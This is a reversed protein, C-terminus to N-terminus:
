FFTSFVMDYTKQFETLKEPDQPSNWNWFFFVTNSIRLLGDGGTESNKYLKWHSNMGDQVYNFTKGNINMPNSTSWNIGLERLTQTWDSVPVTAKWALVQYNSKDVIMGFEYPLTGYTGELYDMYFYDHKVTLNWSSWILAVLITLTFFKM